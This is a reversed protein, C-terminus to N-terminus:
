AGAGNAGRRRSEGPFEILRAEGDKEDGVILKLRGREFSFVRDALLTGEVDSVSMLVGCGLERAVGSLLECADQTRQMGLGELLDDVVMLKPATVIGRALAVLVREWNSLDGWFQWACGAAGVRELAGLALERVERLGRGRGIAMPLGVCDVIKLRPQRPHRDIWAIDGGLLREREQARCGTLELGEFWVEGRDPLLLGSAVELLTTKGEYRSGLVAVIEGRVVVLSLDVLVRVRRDGRRYSKSVAHLRLLEDTM